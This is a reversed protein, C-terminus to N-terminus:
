SKKNVLYIYVKIEEITKEKNYYIKEKSLHFGNKWKM